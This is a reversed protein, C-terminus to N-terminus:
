HQILLAGDSAPILYQEPKPIRDKPLNTNEAIMQVTKEMDAVNLAGTKSYLKDTVFYLDYVKAVVEKSRKSYKQMIAIAEDKNKPDYLWEHIRKLARTFREGHNNTAAWKRNALYVLAPFGKFKQAFRLLVPFGNQQALTATPQFLVGAAISGKQLAAYKAPTPGIQVASFDSPGIGHEKLIERTLYFEGVRLGSFGVTQGRLDNISKVGKKGVLFWDAETAPAAIIGVATAGKEIAAILPDPQSIAIEVQGSILMQMSQVSSQNALIHADFGEDKFFGKEVGVDLDWYISNSPIYTLDLKELDAARAHNVTLSAGLATAVAAVAAITRITRM